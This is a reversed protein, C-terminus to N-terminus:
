GHPAGTARLTDAMRLMDARYWGSDVFGLKRYVAIASANELRVYLALDRGGSDSGRAFAAILSTGIGNGRMSPEVYVGGIQDCGVGSANFNAKGVIRGGSVAVLPKRHALIAGVRAAIEMAGAPRTAGSGPLVEEDEYRKQLDCLAAFDGPAAARVGCGQAPLTRSPDPRRIMMLYRRSDSEEAAMGCETGLAKELRLLDGEPGCALLAPSEAGRGERMAGAVKGALVSDDSSCAPLICWLVGSRRCYLAGDIRAGGGAAPSTAAVAHVFLNDGFLARFARGGQTLSMDALAPCSAERDALFGSYAEFDSVRARRWPSASDVSERHTM